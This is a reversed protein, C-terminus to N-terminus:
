SQTYQCLHVTIVNLITVLAANHASINEVSNNIVNLVKAYNRHSTLLFFTEM